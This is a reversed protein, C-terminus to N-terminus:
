AAQDLQVSELPRKLRRWRKMLLNLRRGTVMVRAGEAALAIAADKGIDTRGGTVIAAKNTFRMIEVGMKLKIQEKNDSAVNM